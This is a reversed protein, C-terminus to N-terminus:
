GQGIGGFTAPMDTIEDASPAQIDVPEGWNSTALEVAAMEGLDFTVKRINNDGDLWMDYALEEPIEVGTDALDAFQGSIKTTDISLTYHETDDGDLSEEGVFVVKTLGDEFNGFSKLPDMLDTMESTDGMSSNPDNPDSEVYKNDTLAGMKMYAKGDVMVMEIPDEGLMPMLMSLAMEPPEAQYDIQGEGSIEMGAATMTLEFTATTAAEASAKLADGFAAADVEEGPEVQPVSDTVSTGDGSKDNSKDSGCAALSVVLLPAAVAAVLRRSRVTRM